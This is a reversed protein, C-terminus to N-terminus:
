RVKCTSKFTRGSKLRVQSTLKGPYNLIINVYAIEAEKDVAYIRQGIIDGTLPDNIMAHNAVMEVDTLTYSRGVYGNERLQIDFVLTDDQTETFGQMSFSNIYVEDPGVCDFDFSDAFVGLSLVLSLLLFKM